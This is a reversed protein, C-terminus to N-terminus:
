PKNRSEEDDLEDIYSYILCAQPHEQLVKAMEFLADPALQDGGDLIGVFEGRALSLAANLLGSASITEELYTIKIREDLREYRDLVKRAHEETPDGCVCLEWHPYVQSVVCDLGRELWERETNSVPLLVSILPAYGLNSAEDRM